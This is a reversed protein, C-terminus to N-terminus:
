SDFTEVGDIDYLTVDVGLGKARQSFGEDRFTTARGFLISAATRHVIPLSAISRIM